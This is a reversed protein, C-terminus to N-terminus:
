DVIVACDINTFVNDKMAERPVATIVTRNRISVVYATDELWILAEKAGKAAAKTV